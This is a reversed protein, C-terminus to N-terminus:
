VEVEIFINVIAHTVSGKTTKSRFNIRDGAKIVLPTQFTTHSFWSNPAKIIEYHTQDSGNHVTCVIIEAAQSSGSCRCISGRVTKGDVPSPWGYRSNNETGNGFSWELNGQTLSGSEEAWVTIYHKTKSFNNHVQTKTYYNALDSNNVKGQM